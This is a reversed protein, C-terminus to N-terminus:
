GVPPDIFDTSFSSDWFSNDIKNRGMTWIESVSDSGRRVEGTDIECAGYWSEITEPSLNAFIDILVSIIWFEDSLTATFVEM